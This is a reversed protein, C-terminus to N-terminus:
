RTEGQGSYAVVFSASAFATTLILPSGPIAAEEPAIGGLRGLPQPSFLPLLTPTLAALVIPQAANGDATQTPCAPGPCSPRKRRAPTIVIERGAFALAEPRSLMGLDMGRRALAAFSPHQGGDEYTTRVAAIGGEVLAAVRAKEQKLREQARAEKVADKAPGFAYRGEVVKVAPEEGTAEFRDSGEKLQRWFEINPDSRHRAMNEATMRFPFSHFQFARQGGAFADRAIAYIESIGDDTMAFCGASTCAGHVMLYAGSAGRAKDYANPFGIDFSLYYSSNPNMQKPTVSYFGEPTQRDGQQTKPGLQGSWRCIPFTKLHVFRGDKSRKWVELEAEKKFTRILIAASAETGRAEMLRLTASPIPAEHKRAASAAEAAQGLCLAAVTFVAGRL